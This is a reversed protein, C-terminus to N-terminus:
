VERIVFPDILKRYIAANTEPDFYDDIPQLFFASPDQASIYERDSKTTNYYAVSGGSEITGNPSGDSFVISSDAGLRNKIFRVPAAGDGSLIVGEKQEDPYRDLFSSLEIDSISVRCGCYKAIYAAFNVVYGDADSKVQLKIQDAIQIRVAAPQETNEPNKRDYGALIRRGEKETFGVMLADTIESVITEYNQQKRIINYIHLKEIIETLVPDGDGKDAAYVIIKKDFISLSEIATILGKEDDDLASLDLLIADYGFITRTETKVFDQLNYTGIVKKLNYKAELFNFLDKNNQSIFAFIRNIM